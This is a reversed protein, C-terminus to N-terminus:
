RSVGEVPDFSERQESVLTAIAVIRNVIVPRVGQGATRYLYVVGREDGKDSRHRLGHVAM